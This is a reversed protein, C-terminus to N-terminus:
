LLLSIQGTKLTDRASYARGLAESARVMVIHCLSTVDTDGAGDFPRQPDRSDSNMEAAAGRV